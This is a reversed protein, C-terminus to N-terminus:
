LNSRGARLAVLYPFVCVGVIVSVSCYPAHMNTILSVMVNDPLLNVLKKWQKQVSQVCSEGEAGVHVHIYLLAYGYVTCVHVHCLVCVYM